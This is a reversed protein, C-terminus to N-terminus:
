LTINHQNLYLLANWLADQAPLTLDDFLDAHIKCGSDFYEGLMCFLDDQSISFSMRDTSEDDYTFTDSFFTFDIDRGDRELITDDKHNHTFTM